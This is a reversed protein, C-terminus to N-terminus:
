RLRRGAAPHPRRLPGLKCGPECEGYGGDNLGDDCEEGLSVIGDGCV